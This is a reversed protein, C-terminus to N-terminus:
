RMGTAASGSYCVAYGCVNAYSEPSWRAEDARLWLWELTEVQGGAAAACCVHPWSAGGHGSLWQLVSLRGQYAAMTVARELAKRSRAGDGFAFKVIRLDGGEM